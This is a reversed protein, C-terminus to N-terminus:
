KTRILEAVFAREETLEKNTATSKRNSFFEDMPDTRIGAGAVPRAIGVEARSVSKGAGGGWEFTDGILHCKGVTRM